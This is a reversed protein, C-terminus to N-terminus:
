TLPSLLGDFGQAVEPPAWAFYACRTSADRRCGFFWRGGSQQQKSVRLGALPPSANACACRPFAEDAWVFVESCGQCRCSYFLRGQNAGAKRVRRLTIHRAGHLACRPRTSAARATVSAPAPAPALAARATVSALAPAARAAATGSDAFSPAAGAAPPRAVASAAAAAWPDSHRPAAATGDSRKRKGVVAAGSVPTHKGGCLATCWFTPRPTGAGLKCMAVAGGCDVCTTRNYVHCPPQRGARCWAAAFSRVERVAASLQESQLTRLASRPDVAARHLAENKIINGCGPLVSQDLLVDAIMREAPSRAVASVAADIDFSPSCVDRTCMTRVAERASRADALVASSDHVRVECAPEFRILLTLQKRGSPPCDCHLSGAMGFHCRVATESECGEAAFIMWLQKGLTISAVLTRGRIADAVISAASGAVGVVRKGVVVKRLKEGNHTCGPGEVM